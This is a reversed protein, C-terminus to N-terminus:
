DSTSDANFGIKSKKYITLLKEKKAKDTLNGVHVSKEKAHRYYDATTKIVRAPCGVAVSGTPIDKTVIAGAGIICDDGVTVGPLFTANVGVYVRDGLIIPAIYELDPTEHRFLLVAGDHTLFNVGNTIHCDDGINIM